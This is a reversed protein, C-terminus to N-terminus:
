QTVVVVLLVTCTRLEIHLTHCVTAVIMQFETVCVNDQKHMYM